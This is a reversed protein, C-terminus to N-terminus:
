DRAILLSKLVDMWVFAVLAAVACVLLDTAHLPALQFLERLAPVSVVAGLMLLAASILWTVAPNPVRFGGLFTRDLSRNTFILSLNTAVMTTFTLTRADREDLGFFRAGVLVAAVIVLASAGQLLSRTILSAAFLREGRSRPPRNMVNAEEPELEFAVSSAPDIIMEVFVVHLPLLVLPWGFLVPILSIGAIPVHVALVYGVAKKINDYIRRGLRVAKVISGFDDDLLVLAAAERAVDTGRGGMAIGIDAAKLAPADNVGDGTMAVVEGNAQLASVLRLKQNPAVRAFVDASRVRECLAGDDLQELESGIVCAGIQGLGIRSAIHLATAPHDGTLMVVRIGAEVCQRVADPVVPRVPDALGVLGLFGLQFSEPSDPLEAADHEAHAIGLVRLGASAMASVQRLIEAAEGEPLRCLRIVTEPAGKLAILYHRVGPRQWVNTVALFRESLPYERVHTWAGLDPAIRREEGFELFAREMPDFPKQNSALIGFEIAQRADQSLHEPQEATLDTTEGAAHVAALSMRNLTLTGTKDVCLVTAAGLTEIAPFRRTLVRSQSIRWAGLALFVTLIVPFEEPVLSIAMTLGALAGDLWGGRRVGYLVAVAACASLGLLALLRVVRRVERQLPTREVMIASLSRGIKGLETAAGTATVCAAGSGSVVLTGLFVRGTECADAAASPTAGDPASKRVPVSEGTLLSEDVQLNTAFSVVADAPVRDGESLILVDGRVVERGPIRKRVGSRLVLARPSSLDRLAHLTRETKQEQYLTIGIIFFIAGLLTIAELLDGLLLYIAGTALLLLLMPERLVEAAIRLTSKQKASPLENAGEAALRAAAEDDTLGAV